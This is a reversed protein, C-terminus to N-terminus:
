KYTNAEESIRAVVSRKVREMTKTKGKGSTMCCISSIMCCILRKLNSDKVLTIEMDKWKVSLKNRKLASHYEMKQMYWKNM